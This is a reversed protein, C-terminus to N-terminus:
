TFPHEFLDVILIYNMRPVANDPLLILPVSNEEKWITGYGNTSSRITRVGNKAFLNLCIVNSTRM